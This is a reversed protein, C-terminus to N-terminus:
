HYQMMLNRNVMNNPLVNNNLYQFQAPAFNLNVSSNKNFLNNGNNPLNGSNKKQNLEGFNYTDLTKTSFFPIRRDQINNNVSNQINNNPNQLNNKQFNLVNVSSNINKNIPSENTKKSINSIEDNKNINNNNINNNNTNKKESLNNFKFNVLHSDSKRRDYYPRNDNGGVNKKELDYARGLVENLPIIYNNSEEFFKKNAPIDRSNLVKELYSIIEASEKLELVEKEIFEIIALCIYVIFDFGRILLVDWIINLEEFPISLTFLTQLWKSVWFENVIDNKQFHKYLKPCLEKFNINFLNNNKKLLPFGEEFYGKIDYLINKFIYFTKVEDYNTTKLLFGVIYNMGQCYGSSNYTNICSLINKLIQINNPTQENEKMFTRNIDKEIQPDSGKKALLLKYEKLEQDYNYYQNNNYKESLVIDWIFFRLKNPIGYNLLKNFAKDKFLYKKINNQFFVKNLNRSKFSEIKMNFKQINALEENTIDFLYKTWELFISYMKRLPILNEIIKNNKSYYIIENNAKDSIIYSYESLLGIDQLVQRNQNQIGGGQSILSNLIEEVKSFSLTNPSFADIAGM